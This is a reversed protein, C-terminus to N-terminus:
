PAEMFLHRDTGTTALHGTTYWNAINDKRFEYAISYALAVDQGFLKLVKAVCGVPDDTIEDYTFRLAAPVAKCDKISRNVNAMFSPALYKGDNHGRFREANIFSQQVAVPDDRVSSIVIAGEDIMRRTGPEVIHFKDFRPNDYKMSAVRKVVSYLWSSGSRMSAITLIVADHNNMMPFCHTM